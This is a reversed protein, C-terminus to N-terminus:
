PDLPAVPRASPGDLLADVCVDSAIADCHASSMGAVRALDDIARLPGHQARDAVIRAALQPGVEPILAFEAVGARALNVRHRPPTFRVAEASDRTHTSQLQSWQALAVAAIVCALISLACSHVRGSLSPFAGTHRAVCPTESSM